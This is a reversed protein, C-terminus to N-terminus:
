KHVKTQMIYTNVQKYLTYMMAIKRVESLANPQQFFVPTQSGKVEKIGVLENAAPFEDSNNRQQWLAVKAKLIVPNLETSEQLAIFDPHSTNICISM